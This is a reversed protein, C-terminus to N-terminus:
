QTLLSREITPTGWKPPIAALLENPQRDTGALMKEVRDPTPPVVPLGDTWGNQYCLEILDADEAAEIQNSQWQIQTMM